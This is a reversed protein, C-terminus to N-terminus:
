RIVSAVEKGISENVEDAPKDPNFQIYQIVEALRRVLWYNVGDETFYCSKGSDAILVGFPVGELSRGVPIRVFSKYSVDEVSIGMNLMEDAYKKRRIDEYIVHTGDKIGDLLINLRDDDEIKCALYGRKGHRNFGTSKLIKKKQVSSDESEEVIVSYYSIRCEDDLLTRWIEHVLSQTLDIIGKSLVGNNRAEIFATIFANYKDSVKEDDKKESRQIMLNMILTLITLGLGTSWWWLNRDEPSSNWGVYLLALPIFLLLAKPVSVWLNMLRMKVEIYVKLYKLNKM